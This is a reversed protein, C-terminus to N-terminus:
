ISIQRKIEEVLNLNNERIMREFEIKDAVNIDYSVNLVIERGGGARNAPVVYEGKHLLYPGTKPIYGGAQKAPLGFSLLPGKFIGFKKIAELAYSAFEKLPGIITQVINVTITVTKDKISQIAENLGNIWDIVKDIAAKTAEKGINVIKDVLNETSETTPKIQNNRLWGMKEAFRSIADTGEIAMAQGLGGFLSITRGTEDGLTALGSTLTGVTTALGIMQRGTIEVGVGFPELSITPILDGFAGFLLNAQAIVSVLESLQYTLLVLDGEAKRQAESQDMWAEGLNMVNELQELATPLYKIALFQQYLETAGVLDLAPEIASKMTRSMQQFGFMMPLFIRFMGTWSKSLEEIQDAYSKTSKILKTNIKDVVYGSKAQKYTTTITKKIGQDLTTLSDTIQKAKGSVKDILATVIEIREAM